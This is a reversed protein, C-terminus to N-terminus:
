GAQHVRVGGELVQPPQPPVFQPPCDRPGSMGFFAQDTPEGNPARPNEIVVGMVGPGLAFIGTAQIIAGNILAHNGKVILCNVRATMEGACGPVAAMTITGSPNARGPDSTAVFSVNIKCDGAVWVVQVDGTAFNQKDSAMPAPTGFLTNGLAGNKSPVIVLVSVLAFYSGIVTLM